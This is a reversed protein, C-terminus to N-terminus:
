AYPKVNVFVGPPPQLTNDTGSRLYWNPRNKKEAGASIIVRVRLNEGQDSSIVLVRRSEREDGCRYWLPYGLLLVFLKEPALM